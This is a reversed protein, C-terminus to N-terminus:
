DPGNTQPILDILFRQAPEAGCPEQVAEAGAETAGDRIGLCLDTQARRLRFGQTTPSYREIRFLQADKDTQCNEQPEVLGQAPGSDLITLCGMGKDVPHEWKIATLDGPAPQLFTRPGPETCPRQVAVESRYRGSREHGATLCLGAPRVPRIRAWSGASKVALIEPLRARAADAARSRSSTLDGALLLGTAAAGVVVVLAAAVLVLPRTRLGSKAAQGVHPALASGAVPQSTQRGHSPTGDSGSGSGNDTDGDTGTGTGTRTVTDTHPDTGTPGTGTPGTHTPGTDTPGTDAVPGECALRKWARTWEALRDQEGCARVLAAVLDPRPLTQKRLIDAVTSRPLVDGRDAARSELQRLTLGSRAKLARLAAMFEEADRLDAPHLFDDDM